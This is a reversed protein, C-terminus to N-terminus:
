PEIVNLADSGAPLEFMMMDESLITGPPLDRGFIKEMLANQPAPVM